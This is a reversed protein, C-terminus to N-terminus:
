ALGLATEAVESAFTRLQQKSPLENRIEEGAWLFNAAATLCVTM